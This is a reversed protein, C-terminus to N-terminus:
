NYVSYFHEVLQPRLSCILFFWTSIFFLNQHSPIVLTSPSFAGLAYIADLASYIGCSVLPFVRPFIDWPICSLFSKEGGEHTTVIIPVSYKGTLNATVAAVKIEYKTYIKLSQVVTSTQDAPVYVRKWTVNKLAKYLVVYSQLVFGPELGEITWTVNVCTSSSAHATVKLPIVTPALFCVCLFSLTIVFPLRPLQFVKSAVELRRRLPTM